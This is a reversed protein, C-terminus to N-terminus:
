GRVTLEYAILIGGVRRTSDDPAIIAREKGRVVAKDNSTIPIAFQADILDDALVIAKLDGQQITGALEHPTYGTVVARVEADFFPRNTGTGTYRRILITEGRESIQRRYTEKIADPTV